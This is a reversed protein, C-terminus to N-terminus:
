KERKRGTRKNTERKKERKKGRTVNNGSESSETQRNTRVWLVRETIVREREKEEFDTQTYGWYHSTPDSM